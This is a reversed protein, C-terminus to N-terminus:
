AGYQIWHLGYYSLLLGGFFAFFLATQRAAHVVIRGNGNGSFVAFSRAGMVAMIVLVFNVPFHGISDTKGFYINGTIILINALIAIITVANKGFLILYFLTFEVFAASLLFFERNFGMQLFSYKDLFPDFWQPFTLKEVASWLFAIVLTLYLIPLRLRLLAKTNIQSFVLFTALGIFTLYDMMHFLGFQYVCYAYLAAIAVGAPLLTRRFLMALAILVQLGPIWWAEVTTDPTLVVGGVLWLVAFFVGVGIRVISLAIDDNNDTLKLLKGLTLPAFRTWREDILIAIFIAVATLFLLTLFMPSIIHMVSLPPDAVDFEVFWKIHALAPNTSGLGLFALLLSMFIRNKM